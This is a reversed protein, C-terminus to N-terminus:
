PGGGGGRSPGSPLLPRPLTEPQCLPSQGSLNGSHEPLKQTLTPHVQPATWRSDEGLSTQLPAVGEAHFCSGLSASEGHLAEAPVM